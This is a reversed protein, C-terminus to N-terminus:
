LFRYGVTFTFARLKVSSNPEADKAVNALGLQYRASVNLKTAPIEYELGFVGAFDTKAKPKTETSGDLPTGTGSITEKDKGSLFFGVQPGAYVSFGSTAITYKALVPLTLYNLTIKDTYKASGEESSQKGGLQSYTLEPQIGFSKSLGFRAFIGANPGVISKSNSSGDADKSHMQAINVGAKIGFQLKGDTTTEKAKQALTTLSLLLASFAVIANKM